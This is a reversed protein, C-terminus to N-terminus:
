SKVLTVHDTSEWYGLYGYGNTVRKAAGLRFQYACTRPPFTLPSAIWSDPTGQWNGGPYSVSALPFSENMGFLANLAYSNLDGPTDFARIHVEVPAPPATINVIDCPAIDHGKYRLGLIQIDPAANDVLLTLTQAPSAVAANAANFFEVQFQHIGNIAGLSSWQLLLKQISYDDAPNPLPYMDNADPGFAQLVYTAGVWHYNSWTQRFHEFPGATGVRHLVRYKRAGATWLTHLTVNNGLINMVGGFAANEVHPVFAAATTARGAANITTAPISGVGGITVGALGGYPDDAALAFVLDHLHSFDASFNAPSDNTFPPTSSAVRLGIPITQPTGAISVGIESLPIRLQWIRHPTASAPSAGFTQNVLALSPGPQLGTWTNPGLYFQHGIRIPLTPYTGYNVDVRPGISRDRDVDFTLWFFDSTGPSNGTDGTLDLAVYVFQNDNKVLMSGVPLPLQGAGTWVAPAFAVTVNIPTTWASRIISM